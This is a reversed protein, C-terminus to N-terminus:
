FFRLFSTSLGAEVRLSLVDSIHVVSLRLTRATRSMHCMLMLFATARSAATLETSRWM